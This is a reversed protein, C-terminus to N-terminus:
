LVYDKVIRRINKFEIGKEYSDIWIAEKNSKFHRYHGSVTFNCKLKRQPEKYDNNIYIKNTSLDIDVLKYEVVGVENITKDTYKYSHKNNIECYQTDAIDYKFRKNLLFLIKFTEILPFRFINNNKTMDCKAQYFFGQFLYVNVDFIKGRSNAYVINIAKDIQFEDINIATISLLNLKSSGPVQIIYDGNFRINIKDFPLKLDRLPQASLTPLKSTLEKIKENTRNSISYSVLRTTNIKEVIKFNDKLENCLSETRGHLTIDLLNNTIKSKIESECNCIEAKTVTKSATSYVGNCVKCQLEIANKENYGLINYYPYLGEYRKMVKSSIGNKSNCEPCLMKTVKNMVSSAKLTFITNCKNCIFNCDSRMNIFGSHYKVKGKTKILTRKNLEDIDINWARPRLTKNDNERNCNLCTRKTSLLIDIKRRFEKKCKKCRLNVFINSFSLIEFEDGYIEEIKKKPEEFKCDCQGNFDAYKIDYIKNCESHKFKISFTNGDNIYIDELTFEPEYKESFIQRIKTSSISSKCEKEKKKFSIIYIENYHKNCLKRAYHPNTCGEVSCGEFKKPKVKRKYHIDGRLLLNNYHTNCLGKCVALNNCEDVSCKPYDKADLYRKGDIFGNNRKAKMLHIRCLGSENKSSINRQCGKVKCKKM